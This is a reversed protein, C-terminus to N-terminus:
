TAPRVNPLLFQYGTLESAIADLFQRPASQVFESLLWNEDSNLFAALEIPRYRCIESLRHMAALTLTLPYRLLRKPGKVNLKAYWLTQTATIFHVDARLKENLAALEQLDDLTLNRPKKVPAVAVSRLARSGANANLTLSPPLQSNIGSIPFDVSVNASFYADNSGRDVVFMCNTLPLFMDRQNRYTLCYTRHVFPVNFLIEKLSHKRTPEAEGLYSCLAPLVGNNKIEVGENSLRIKRSAGRLNDSSVGHFPIFAIGKATLLAKAANMCAYYILLPAAQLSLGQSAKYFERAQNWLVRANDQEERSLWLSVFEWPSETLVNRAELRASKIAKHPRVEKGKFTVPIPSSM